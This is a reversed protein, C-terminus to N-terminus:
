EPNHAGFRSPFNFRICGDPTKETRPLATPQATTTDALNMARRPTCEFGAFSKLQFPTEM